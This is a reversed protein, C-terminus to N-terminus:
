FNKKGAQYIMCIMQQTKLAEEVPIREARGLLSDYFRRIQTYHGSGWYAKNEAGYSIAHQLDPEVHETKGDRYVIDATNGRLHASGNRCHLDLEVPADFSNCNTVYFLGRIGNSFTLVGEATDETETVTTCHRALTADVHAVPVGALYRMLDLTHIAQNIICAGGEKAWTGKWDSGQYYSDPRSWAVMARIGLLDGLRGSHLAEQVALVATNYRNQFIVDLQAGGAQQAAVMQQADAYAISMPKEVVAHVGHELAYIAMPAHLYHPTCIHVVDLGANDVMATYDTYVEGGFQAAQRQARELQVDCVAAIEAEAIQKVSHAHMPFIAGCGVLGVRFQRM